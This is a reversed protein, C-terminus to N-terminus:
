FPFGIGININSKNRLIARDVIIENRNFDTLKTFPAVLNFDNLIFRQGLPQAPDVIQLGGDVRIILFSFDLRLGTGVGVAFERFFSNIRFKGDDGEADVINQLSNVIWINGADDFLAYDIVWFLKKRYEFSTEIILDGGQELRYNIIKPSVESSEDLAVGFAGPGLRRIPWARLSNSGGAYFRKEYPLSPINGYPIALGTNFRFALSTKTNVRYVRRYDASFKVWKFLSFTSDPQFLQNGTLHALTGGSEGFLRLYSSNIAGSGYSNFNLIAEFSSSTIIASRFAASLAGNGLSDQENLFKRFDPTIRRVDTYGM